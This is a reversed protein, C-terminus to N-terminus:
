VCLQSQKSNLVAQVCGSPCGTKTKAGSFNVTIKLEGNGFTTEQVMKDATLYEFGTLPLLGGKEHLPQFFQQYKAIEKGKEEIVTGNIAFMVPANFLMTQLVRQKVLAPFKYLPVDWRDVNVVSDHLVSETLPIIYRPDFMTTAFNDPLTLQKFFQGPGNEPTYGGYVSTINLLSTFYRHDEGMLSGHGYSVASNAWGHADESGLVFQKSIKLMRDLRNERDTIMNQGHEESFDTYFESAADVDLFYTNVGNATSNKVRQALNGSKAESLAQAQSSMYCGRNHFGTKITDDYKIICQDPYANGPWIALVTDSQNAPQGNAFTDYPGVLYGQNKAVQVTETSLPDGDYGVWFKKIGLAALKKMATTGCGSEGFCYSHYAGLLREIDPLAAIKDKMLRLSKTEQLYRRYAMGSALVSGDTLEFMVGYSLTNQSKTFTHTFSSQLSGEKSTHVVTTGIDEELMYASGFRQSGTGATYGWFPMMFDSAVDVGESDTPLVMDGFTGPGEAGDDTGKNWFADRLPINRGPGRPYQLSQYKEDVKGGTIPWTINSGNPQTLRIKLRGNEASALVTCGRAPITWNITGNKNLQPKTAPTGSLLPVGNTFRLSSQENAQVNVELTNTTINAIGGRIPITIFRDNICISRTTDCHATPTCNGVAALFALSSFYYKISM